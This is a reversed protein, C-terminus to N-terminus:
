HFPIRIECEKNCETTTKIEALIREFAADVANETGDVITDNFHWVAGYYGGDAHAWVNTADPVTVLAANGYKMALKTSSSLSPVRVWFISEGSPDWTEIEHDLAQSSGSVFFRIDTGGPQCDSYSFDKIRTPSVRVLLPFDTLAAGSYGSVDIEAQYDFGAFASFVGCLAAVSGIFLRHIM